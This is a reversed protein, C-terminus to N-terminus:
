YWIARTLVRRKLFRETKTVKLPRSYIVGNLDLPRERKQTAKQFQLGTLSNKKLKSITMNPTCQSM